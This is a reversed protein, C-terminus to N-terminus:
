KAKSGQIQTRARGAYGFSGFIPWLTCAVNQFKIKRKENRSSLQLVLRQIKRANKPATIDTRERLQSHSIFKDEAAAQLLQQRHGGINCLDEIALGSFFDLRCNTLNPKSPRDVTSTCRDVLKSSQDVVLTSRVVETPFTPRSSISTRDVPSPRETSPSDEISLQQGQDIVIPTRQRRSNSVTPKLCGVLLRVKAQQLSPSKLSFAKLGNEHWKAAM